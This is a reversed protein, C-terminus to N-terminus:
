KSTKEIALINPYFGRLIFNDSYKIEIFDYDGLIDKAIAIKYGDILFVAYEEDINEDFVM